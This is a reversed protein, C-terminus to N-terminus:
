NCIYPTQMKKLIIYISYMLLAVGIIGFEGGGLPLLTLVVGTGFITFLGSLIFTGCTACGIGLFGAILGGVSTGVAPKVNSKDTLTKQEKIYKLMLAINVGFLIAIIITYSASFIHFNTVISGYLHWLLSVKDVFAISTNSFVSWIIASNPLWVSLSFVTISVVLATVVYRLQKFTKVFSELKSM